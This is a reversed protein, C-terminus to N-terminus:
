STELGSTRRRKLFSNTYLLKTMTCEDYYELYDVRRGVGQPIYVGLETVTDNNDERM